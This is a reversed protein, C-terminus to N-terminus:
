EKDESEAKGVYDLINIADGLGLNYYERAVDTEAAKKDRIIDKVDDLPTGKAVASYIVSMLTKGSRQSSIIEKTKSLAEYYDKPIEIILKVTDSM